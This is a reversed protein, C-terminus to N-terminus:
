MFPYEQVQSTLPSIRKFPERAQYKSRYVDKPTITGVDGRSAKQAEQKARIVAERRNIGEGLLEKIREHVGKTNMRSEVGYPNWDTDKEM